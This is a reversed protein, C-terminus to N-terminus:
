RRWRWRFKSLPALADVAARRVLLDEGDVNDGATSDAYDSVRWRSTFKKTTTKRVVRKKQPVVGYLLSSGAALAVLLVFFRRFNRSM